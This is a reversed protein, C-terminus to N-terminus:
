QATYGGDVVISQGTLYHCYESAVFALIHAIDITKGLKKMPINEKIKNIGNKKLIKKTLETEIVGPCISNVQINFKALDLAMCKTVGNLAHKSASYIGRKEKGVLGFISSINIIKGKKRKIMKKSIERSIKISSILNVNFIDYIEKDSTNQISNIKHTGANNILVDIRKIKKIELLFLEFAEDDLFDVKYMNFIKKLQFSPNTSTGYINAGLKKFYKATKLGIGRSIGTIFVNKNKFNINL